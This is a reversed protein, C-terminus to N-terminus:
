GGFKELIEEIHKKFEQPLSKYDARLNADDDIKFDSLHQYIDKRLESNSNMRAESALLSIVKLASKEDFEFANSVVQTYDNKFFRKRNETEEIVSCLIGYLLNCFHQNEEFFSEFREERLDPHRKIWEVEMDFLENYELTFYIKEDTSKPKKPETYKTSFGLVSCYSTADSMPKTKWFPFDIYSKKPHHADKYTVRQNNAYQSILMLRNILLLKLFSIEHRGKINETKGFSGNISGSDPDNRCSEVIQYVDNWMERFVEPQTKELEFYYIILRGDKANWVAKDPGPHRRFISQKRIGQDLRSLLDPMLQEMGFNEILSKHLIDVYNLDPLLERVGKRTLNTIVKVTIHPRNERAYDLVEIGQVPQWLMTGEQLLLLDCILGDYLHGGIKLEELAEAGDTIPVVEYYPTFLESLKSLTEREDELLLLRKKAKTEKQKYVVTNNIATLREVTLQQLDKLFKTLLVPTMEQVQFSGCYALIDTGAIETIGLFREVIGQIKKLQTEYKIKILNELDHLLVDLIGSTTLLYKKLYSWKRKNFRDINPQFNRLDHHRFAAIFSNAFASKYKRKYLIEQNDVSVFQINPTYDGSVDLMIKEAIDYGNFELKNETWYLESLIFILDPLNDTINYLKLEGLSRVLEIGPNKVKGRELELRIPISIAEAIYENTIILTKM